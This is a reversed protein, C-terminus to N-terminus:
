LEKITLNRFWTEDGHDQLMIRGKANKAFEPVDKFKSKAHAAKWADTATDMEVVKAGNLWHEFKTGRVVIKSTNWEGPPNLKKAKPDPAVFDYLSATQRQPGVKADPHKSDDLLQYEPGLNGKKDYAMVRYKVGSNGGPAIKWEFSFEFDGYEKESYLDGGKSARHLVGGEEVVWGSKLPKGDAGTWGKLDKGDFLSVPDAAVVTFTLISLFSLVRRKM